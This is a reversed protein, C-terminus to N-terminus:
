GEVADALPAFLFARLAIGYLPALLGSSLGAVVDIPSAQGASAALTNFTHVMTAFLALVGGAVSASGVTRLVVASVRRREPPVDEPRADFADLLAGSCGRPGHAVLAALWPLVLVHGLVAPHALGDLGGLIRAALAVLVLWTLALFTIRRALM